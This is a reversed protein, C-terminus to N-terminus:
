ASVTKPTRHALWREAAFVIIIALWFYRTLSKSELPKVDTVTHTDSLIQPMYQQTSLVRRDYQAIDTKSPETTLKLLWAPFADSWVLNNWAPNFRSYYHYIHAQGSQQLSLVPHGFGDQWIPDYSKDAKILKYLNIKEKNPLAITFLGGNNMWTNVISAKGKEYTFLHRSNKLAQQNITKESLWFLWQTNAPIQGPNNVMKLIYRRQTFQTVALLAAKLYNADTTNNDAYIIIRQTATDVNLPQQKSNPLSITAKGDVTTLTYDANAKNNAQVNSYSYNIGSPKSQGQIVRVDGRPIFWADHIFSITSDAPSYTQWNLKLAVQPKNGTFYIAQNPTFVYVPLDSSVRNNLESVLNWYNPQLSQPAPLPPKISDKPNLFIQTLNSKAFGANFYHFEYGVRTLSDIAPKFKQYTATLNEKPFLVWGKVKAVQTRKQWVPLALLLALLLLLLCRLIFLPIDLLKFSRSSKRSAAGMLSISGVKLVKGSRINWLHILVPILLAAAGFFWIPNLFQFM